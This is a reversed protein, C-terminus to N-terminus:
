EVERKGTILRWWCRWKDAQPPCGSNPYEMDDAQCCGGDCYHAVPCKIQALTMCAHRLYPKIDGRITRDSNLREVEAKLKHNLGDQTAIHHVKETLHSQLQRNEEKLEDREKVLERVNGELLINSGGLVECEERLKEYDEVTEQLTNNEAMLEDREKVVAAFHENSQEITWGFISFDINNGWGLEAVLEGAFRLFEPLQEEQLMFAEIRPDDDERITALINPFRNKIENLAVMLIKKQKKM